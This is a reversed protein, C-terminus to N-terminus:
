FFDRQDDKYYFGSITWGSGNNYLYFDFSLFYLEFKLMYRRRVLIYKIAKEEILDYGVIKKYNAQVSSMQSSMTKDLNDIFSNGLTSNQKLLQIAESFKGDSFTQMFKDCLANLGTRSTDPKLQGFSFLTTTLLCLVLSLKRM